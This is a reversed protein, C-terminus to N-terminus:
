LSVEEGQELLAQMLGMASFLKKQETMGTGCRCVEKGEGDNFVDFGYGNVVIHKKMLEDM